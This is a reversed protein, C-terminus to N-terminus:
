KTFRCQTNSGEIRINATEGKNYFGEGILDIGNIDPPVSSLEVKFRDPSKPAFNARLATDSV